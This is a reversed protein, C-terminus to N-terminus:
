PKEAVHIYRNLSRHVRQVHCESVTLGTNLILDIIPKNYAIVAKKREKLVRHVETLTEEVLKESRKGKIRASRGYPPDTIVADLSKDRLSLNAADQYILTHDNLYHSLNTEAGRIIRRQIDSGIVRAGLLGAEILIGGTGCFPDLLLDGQKVEALNVLARAIRPMLVGPHFFPRKQPKRDEFSSRDVTYLTITFIGIEPTLLLKFPLDPTKLDVRSGHRKVIGGIAAELQPLARRSSRSSRSSRSNDGPNRAYRVRVSYTQESEILESLDADKISEIVKEISEEGLPPTTTIVQHIAHTMALREGVRGLREKCDDCVEVILVGPYEVSHHYEIAEARLVACVERPPLTQDEGSLEFCIQM